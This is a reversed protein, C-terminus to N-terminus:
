PCRGVQARSLLHVPRKSPEGRGRQAVIQGEDASALVRLGDWGAAMAWRPLPSGEWSDRAEKRFDRLHRVTIIEGLSSGM